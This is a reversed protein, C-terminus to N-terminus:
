GHEAEASDANAVVADRVYQALDPEVANYTAAFRPDAVYMEGLNRHFSPSCDYFRTHIQRRAREAIAMAEAGDAPLGARKAAAFDAMIADSEAKIEAWDAKTYRKTRAASQKWADTEGWREEAEAQYEDRYDDGFLERLDDGTAPTKDMERELARDIAGVLETLEDRRTIVAARQRRLHEAASTGSGLAAAVDDLPLELRRYIVIQQLRALDAADYLRYGAASRAGPVLLGIADYHHLTRVTVGTLEALQGVTWPGDGPTARPDPRTTMTNM